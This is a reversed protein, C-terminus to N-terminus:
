SSSPVTVVTVQVKKSMARDIDRGIGIVLPALGGKEPGLEVLVTGKPREKLRIIVGERAVEVPLRAKGSPNILFIAFYSRTPDVRLKEREEVRNYNQKQRALVDEVIDAAKSPEIVFVKYRMYWRDRYVRYMIAVSPLFMLVVLAVISLVVLIARVEHGFVFMFLLVIFFASFQLGIWILLYKHVNDWGRLSQDALLDVLGEERWNRIM